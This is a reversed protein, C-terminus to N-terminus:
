IGIYRQYNNENVTIVNNEPSKPTNETHEFNGLPTTGTTKSDFTVLKFKMVSPIFSTEIANLCTIRTIYHSYQDNKNNRGYINNVYNIYHVAYNLIGENYVELICKICTIIDKCAQIICEKKQQPTAKVMKDDEDYFGYKAEDREEYKHFRELFPLLGNRSWDNILFVYSNKGYDFHMFTQWNSRIDLEVKFYSCGLQAAFTESFM